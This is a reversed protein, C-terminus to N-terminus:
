YRRAQLAALAAEPIFDKFHVVGYHQFMQKMRKLEPSCLEDTSYRKQSPVGFEINQDPAPPQASDYFTQDTAHAVPTAPTSQPSNFAIGAAVALAAGVFSVILMAFYHGLCGRSDRRVPYANTETFGTLEIESSSPAPLSEETPLRTHTQGNVNGM